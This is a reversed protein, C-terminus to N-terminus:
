KNPDAGQEIFLVVADEMGKEVAFHLASLGKGDLINVDAGREVLLTVADMREGEVACHLASRGTSDLANIDAGKNLLIDMIKTQGKLAAMHLPSTPAAAPQPGVQHFQPAPVPPIVRPKRIRKYRDAHSELSSGGHQLRRWRRYSAIQNINKPDIDHNHQECRVDIFWKSAQRKRCVLKMKAPCGIKHTPRKRIGTGSNKCTGGRDCILDVRVVEADQLYGGGPTKAKACGSQVLFWGQSIAYQLVANFAEDRTEYPGLMLTPRVKPLQLPTIPQQLPAIYKPDSPSRGEEDLSDNDNDEGGDADRMTNDQTQRAPAFQQTVHQQRAQQQQQQPQQHQPQRQQRSQHQQAQHHQQHQNQQQQHQSPQQQQAQHPDQQQQMYAEYAAQSAHISPPRPALSNHDIRHYVPELSTDQQNQLAQQAAQAQQNQQAQQTQQSQQPQQSPLLQRNQQSQRTNQNQQNQQDQQNQQPQLTNLSPQHPQGPPRPQIYTSRSSPPIQPPLIPTERRSPTPVRNFPIAPQLGVYNNSM